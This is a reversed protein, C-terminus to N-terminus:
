KRKIQMQKKQAGIKIGTGTKKIQSLGKKQLPLNKRSQGTKAKKTKFADLVAQWNPFREEPTKGMMKVIISKSKESIQNESPFRIKERMHKEILAYASTASFPPAGTLLEFFVVGLSYQDASWDLGQDLTQEPPMHQTSGFFLERNTQFVDSVWKSLGFDALAPQSNENFLINSPSIDAHIIGLESAYIMAEILPLLYKLADEEAIGDPYQKLLSALTGQAAYQMAVYCFEETVGADIFGLVHPHQLKGAKGIHQTFSNKQNEDIGETHFTKLAITRKLGAQYALYTTSYNGGGLIRILEFGEIVPFVDGQEAVGLTNPNIAEFSTTDKFPYEEPPSIDPVPTNVYITTTESEQYPNDDHSYFTFQMNGVGVLDGDRMACQQNQLCYDNLYTGNSSGLDRLVFDSSPTERVVLCHYRSVSSDERLCISNDVSRGIKFESTDNKLHIAKYVANDDFVFYPM